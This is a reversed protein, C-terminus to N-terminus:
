AAGIEISRLFDAQVGARGHVAAEVRACAVDFWRRNIEIGVARRGAHAAAVMSSGSGMFPDLVLAGPASCNEIWSRLLIVPKETPHQTVDRQPVYVLQKASPNSITRAAGKWLYLGFECNPMFWRNPTVTGKNWILLRHFRLGAALMAGRADFEERDSTMVIADANDAMAAYFLPAMEAWPVIPFLAGSNDYADRGFCGGMEGTGKGGSTLLYPPDSLLLDARIDLQPLVERMDGLYMTCPGITVSEFM